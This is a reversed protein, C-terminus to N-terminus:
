FYFKMAMQIQRENNVVTGIVGVGAAGIGTGPLGLNPHNFLNFAEARAQLRFREKFRFDRVLSIDLNMLGPGRLIGRGSNGFCPCTPAAFATIDFWAGVSRQDAPLAGDRLRNPHATAGSATPDVNLTVTFPQGGQASYIGSVQWDRIIHNVVGASKGFPFQYLGSLVFRQQVDFNSSARNASLNHM